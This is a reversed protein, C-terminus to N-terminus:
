AAAQWPAQGLGPHSRGTSERCHYRYACSGCPSIPEVPSFEPSPAIGNTLMRQLNEFRRLARNVLNQDKAFHVVRIAMRAQDDVHLIPIGMKRMESIGITEMWRDFKGSDKCIYIVTIKDFGLYHAYISTQVRHEHTPLHHESFATWSCTKFDVVCPGQFFEAYSEDRILLDAAGTINREPDTFSVEVDDPSCVGLEIFAKQLWTHVLTGLNFIMLLNGDPPVGPHELRGMADMKQYWLMRGCACAQSPHFLREDRDQGRRVQELHDYIPNM